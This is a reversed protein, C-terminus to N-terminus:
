MVLDIDNVAEAFYEEDRFEADYEVSEVMSDPWAFGDRWRQGVHTLRDTVQDTALPGLPPFVWAAFGMAMRMEKLFRSDTIEEKPVPFREQLTCTPLIATVMTQWVKTIEPVTLRWEAQGREHWYSDETAYHVELAATGSTHDFTLSATIEIGEPLGSEIGTALWREWTPGSEIYADWQQSHRLMELRGHREQIVIDTATPGFLRLWLQKVMSHPHQMQVPEGCESIARELHEVVRAM